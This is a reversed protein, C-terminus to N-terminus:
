PVLFHYTHNLKKLLIINHEVQSSQRPRAPHKELELEKITDLIDDIILDDRLKKLGTCTASIQPLLQKFWLKATDFTKGRVIHPGAKFSGSWLKNDLSLLPAKNKRSRTKLLNRLTLLAKRLSEEDLTPCTIIRQIEESFNLSSLKVCCVQRLHSNSTLHKVNGVTFGCIRCEKEKKFIEELESINEGKLADLRAAFKELEAREDM